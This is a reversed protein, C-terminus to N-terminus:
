ALDSKAAEREEPKMRGAFKENEYLKMREIVSDALSRSQLLKFQTQFYDDLFTEIQFVEEFTLINPEKEILLTGKATYTPRAVFSYITVVVFLPVAFAAVTWKRKMLVRWYERLDIPKAEILEEERYEEM